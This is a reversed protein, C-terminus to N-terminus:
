GATKLGERMREADSDERRKKWGGTGCCREAVEGRVVECWSGMGVREVKKGEHVSSSVYRLYADDCVARVSPELSYPRPLTREL